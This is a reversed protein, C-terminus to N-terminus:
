RYTHTTYHVNAKILCVCVCNFKAIYETHSLAFNPPATQIVTRMDFALDGANTEVNSNCRVRM